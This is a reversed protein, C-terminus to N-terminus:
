HRLSPYSHLLSWLPSECSPSVFQDISTIRPPYSSTPGEDLSGCLSGRRCYWDPISTCGRYEKSQGILRALLTDEQKNDVDLHHIVRYVVWALRSKDNM